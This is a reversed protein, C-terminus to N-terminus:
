GNKQAYLFDSVANSRLLLICSAISYAIQLLLVAALGGTMYSENLGELLHIFTFLTSLGAGVVFLYRVWSVGAILAISLALQIILSFINVDVVASILAAVINLIAITYVIIRGLKFQRQQRELYREYEQEREEKTVSDFQGFNPTIDLKPLPLNQSITKLSRALSDVSSLRSVDMQDLAELITRKAHADASINLKYTEIVKTINAPSRKMSKIEEISFFLKRLDSITILEAVDQESYDRYDRGNMVTSSPRILDEEVYYRVTRETLGTRACVEKMKM